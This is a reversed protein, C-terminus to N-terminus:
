YPTNLTQAALGAQVPITVRLVYGVGVRPFHDGSHRRNATRAHM